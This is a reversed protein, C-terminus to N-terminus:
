RALFEREASTKIRAELNALIVRRRDEILQITLSM